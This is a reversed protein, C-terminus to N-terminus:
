REDEFESPHPITKPSALPPRERGPSIGRLPPETKMKNVLAEFQKAALKANVRDAVPGKTLEELTEELTEETAPPHSIPEIHM